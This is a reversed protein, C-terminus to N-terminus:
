TELSSNPLNCQLAFRVEPMPDDKATAIWQEIDENSLGVDKLAGALRVAAARVLTLTAEESIAKTSSTYATEVNIIGLVSGIREQMERDLLGFALLRMAIDLAHLLGPERRTEIVSIVGEILRKPIVKLQGDKVLQMWRYLANFGAWSSSNDRSIMANLIGKVAGAEFLPALRLLEPYAQVLSPIADARQLLRESLEAPMEEAQMAPLIADAIYAGLADSAARNEGAVNSFDSTRVLDPKWDLVERLRNLAEQSTYILNRGKKERRRTAGSLAIFYEALSPQGDRQKLMKIVVDRSQGPIFLYVYSRLNTNARFAEGNPRRSWLAEGFSRAEPETLAEAMLLNTLWLAARSRTQEESWRVKEILVSVRRSFETDDAPRQLSEDPLWNAPTPWDSAFHGSIGKEDPLPFAVAELILTKKDQPPVASASRQLLNGLPEFLNWSCCQPDSALSIGKNWLRRAEEPTSRVVLRSLVELYAGVHRRWFGGIVDGRDDALRLVAHELAGLVTKFLSAHVDNPLTAVQLRGLRRQLSKEDGTQVLRILRLYDEVSGLEELREARELRSRLVDVNRVQVPLGIQDALREWTIMSSEYWGGLRITGSNDRYTGPDFRAEMIPKQEEHRRSDEDTKREMGQFVEWPDCKSEHIRSQLSDLEDVSTADFDGNWSLRYPRICFQAWAMRSLVWLSMRNRHFKERLDALVQQTSSQAEQFRGSNCLLAARRLGWLSDSGKLEGIRNELEGFDLQDRARLAKQYAINPKVDSGVSPDSQLAALVREFASGGVERTRKLLFLQVFHRENQDPWCTPDETLKEAEEQMWEPMSLLATDLRWTLEFVLRGREAKELAQLAAKNLELRSTSHKLDLRIGDPCVAWGPYSARQQAWKEILLRLRVAQKQSDTEFESSSIHGNGPWKWLARPRASALHDVLLEMAVRRKDNEGQGSVLPQLDIASINRMELLRRQASNLGLAGALYM